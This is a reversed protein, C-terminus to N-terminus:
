SDRLQVAPRLRGELRAKRIAGTTRFGCYVAAMATTLFKLPGM